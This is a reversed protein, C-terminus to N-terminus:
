QIFYGVRIEVFLLYFSLTQLPQHYSWRAEKHEWGKRSARNTATCYLFSIKEVKCDFMLKNTVTITWTSRASSRFQILIRCIPGTTFQPSACLRSKEWKVNGDAVRRFVKMNRLYACKDSPAEIFRSFKYTAWRNLEESNMGRGNDIVAVTPKLANLYQVTYWALTHLHKRASSDSLMRPQLRTDSCLIFWWTSKFIASKLSTTAHPVSRMTSLNLSRMPQLFFLSEICM